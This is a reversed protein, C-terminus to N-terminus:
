ANCRGVRGTAPNWAWTEINRINPPLHANVADLVTDYRRRVERSRRDEGFGVLARIRRGIRPVAPPTLGLEVRADVLSQLGQRVITFAKDWEWVYQLLQLPAYYAGSKSADKLEIIVLAGDTGVALQDAEGGPRPLGAWGRSRRFEEIRQRARHVQEFEREANREATSPYALVAERDFPIWPEVVRSWASQVRGEGRTWRPAVEVGDLYTSLAHAFARADARDVRWQGFLPRACAQRGYSEAAFVRIGTPRYRVTVPRTLGCYVHVEDGARLHVDLECGHLKRGQLALLPSLMGDALARRLAKSPARCYAPSLLSTLTGSAWLSRADMRGWDVHGEAEGARVIHSAALAPAMAPDPLMARWDDWHGAIEANDDHACLAFWARTVVSNGDQEIGRAIALNRMPQQAEFAFPCPGESCAGPFANRVSGHSAAFIEWYRRDRQKRRPRRLYCATPDDFFLQASDCVDKRRNGRSTRGRCHTFGTESLKVEFLVAARQGDPLRSWLVVDVATAPEDNAPREGVLEGLLPGPPVWEFQLREISLPVGVFSSVCEALKARNGERFPLFLNFAFAQSSRLHAAYDHLTVSDETVVRAAMKRYAPHVGDTWRAWLLPRQGLQDCWAEM